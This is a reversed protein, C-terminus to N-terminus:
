LKVMNFGDYKKKNVRIKDTKNWWVDSRHWKQRCTVTRMHPFKMKNTLVFIVDGSSMDCKGMLHFLHLLLLLSGSFSHCGWFVNGPLRSNILTLCPVSFLTLAMSLMSRMSSRVFCFALLVFSFLFFLFFNFYIHIFHEIDFSKM